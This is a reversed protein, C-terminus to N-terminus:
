TTEKPLIDDLTDILDAAAYYAGALPDTDTMGEGQEHAADQEAYFTAILTRLTAIQEPTLTM